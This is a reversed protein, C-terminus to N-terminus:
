GLLFENRSIYKDHWAKAREKIYKKIRILKIAFSM